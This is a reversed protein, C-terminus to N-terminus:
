IRYELIWQHTNALDILASGLRLYRHRIWYICDLSQDESSISFCCTQPVAEITLLSDYQGLSHAIRLLEVQYLVFYPM